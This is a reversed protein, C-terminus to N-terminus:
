LRATAEFASAGIRRRSSRTASSTSGGLGSEGRFCFLKGCARYQNERNHIGAAGVRPLALDSEM